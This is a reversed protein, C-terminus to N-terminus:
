SRGRVGGGESEGRRVISDSFISPNVDSFYDPPAQGYEPTGNALTMNQQFNNEYPGPPSVVAINGTGVQSLLVSSVM